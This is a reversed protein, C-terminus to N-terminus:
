LDELPVTFLLAIAAKYAQVRRRNAETAPTLEYLDRAVKLQRTLDQKVLLGAKSTRIDRLGRYVENSIM